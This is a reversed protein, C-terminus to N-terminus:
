KGAYWDLPYGNQESMLAHPDGLLMVVGRYAGGLAAPPQHRSPKSVRDPKSFSFNRYLDPVRKPLPRHVSHFCLAFNSARTPISGVCLPKASRERVVQTGRRLRGLIARTYRFKQPGTLAAGNRCYRLWRM